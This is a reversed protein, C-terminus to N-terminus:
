MKANKDNYDYMIYEKIHKKQQQEGNHRHSSDMSNSITNIVKLTHNDRM